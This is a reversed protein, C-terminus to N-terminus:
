VAIFRQNSDNNMFLGLFDSKERTSLPRCREEIENGDIDFYYMYGDENPIGYITFEQETFGKDVERVLDDRTKVLSNIGITEPITMEFEDNNGKNFADIILKKQDNLLIIERTMDTSQKHKEAIESESFFTKATHTVQEKSVDILWKALDNNSIPASKIAHHRM